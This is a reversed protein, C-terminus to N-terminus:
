IAGLLVHSNDLVAIGQEARLYFGHRNQMLMAEDKMMYYNGEYFPMVAWDRNSQDLGVVLSDSFVFDGALVGLEIPKKIDELLHDKYFSFYEGGNDLEKNATIKVGYAILVRGEKDLVIGKRLVEELKSLDPKYSNWKHYGIYLDTLKGRSCSTSKRGDNRRMGQKMLSILRLLNDNTDSYILRRYYGAAILCHWQDDTIKKVYSDELVQCPHVLTRNDDLESPLCDGLKGDKDYTLVLGIPYDLASGVEYQDVYVYDGGDRIEPVFGNKPTVVSVYNKEMGPALLDLPFEPTCGMEMKVPEFIDSLREWPMNQFGDTTPNLPNDLMPVGYSPTYQHWPNTNAVAENGMGLVAGTAAVGLAQIAQRRNLKM